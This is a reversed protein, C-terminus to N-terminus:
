DFMEGKSTTEYDKQTLKSFLFDDNLLSVFASQSRKSTLVFKDGNIRENAPLRTLPSNDMARM